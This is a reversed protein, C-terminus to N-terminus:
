KSQGVQDVVRVLQSPIENLTRALKTVPALTVQCLMALAQELTPLEALKSLDTAQYYEGGVSLATVEFFDSESQMDKFLRAAAGPDSMSFAFMSPGFLKDAVCAFPTDKVAIKALTNKVIFVKVDQQRCSARLETISVSDVGRYDAIVLSAADKAVQNVLQVVNVKQEKNLAV